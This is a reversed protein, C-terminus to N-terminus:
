VVCVRTETKATSLEDRREPSALNEETEELDQSVPPEETEKLEMGEQVEKEETEVTQEQTEMLVRDEQNVMEDM